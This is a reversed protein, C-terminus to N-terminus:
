EERGFGGRRNHYGSGGKTGFAEEAAPVNSPVVADPQVVAATNPGAINLQSAAAASPGAEDSQPMTSPPAEM